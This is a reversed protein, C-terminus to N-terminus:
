ICLMMSVNKIRNIGGKVGRYGQETVNGPYALWRRYLSYFWCVARGSVEGCEEEGKMEMVMKFMKMMMMKTMFLVDMAQGADASAEKPGM